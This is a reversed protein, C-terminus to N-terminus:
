CATMASSLLALAAEAFAAESDPHKVGGGQERLAQAHLLCVTWGTRLVQAEEAICYRVELDPAATLMM